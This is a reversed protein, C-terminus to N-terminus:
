FCDWSQIRAACVEVSVFAGGVIVRSLWVTGAISVSRVSNYYRDILTRYYPPTSASNITVEMDGLSSTSRRPTAGVDFSPLKIWIM